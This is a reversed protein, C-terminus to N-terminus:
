QFSQSTKPGMFRMIRLPGTGDNAISFERCSFPIFFQDWQGIPLRIGDYEMRGKGELVCMGHFGGKGSASLAGGITLRDMRFFDTADYGVLCEILHSDTKKIIRPPILWKGAAEDAPVGVYRFCEFMRDFGLGNHISRDPLDPGNPSTRELRITLDTPEQIEVIFCGPGIAHPTGGPVIYTEGAKPSIRNMMALMGASDQRHFLDELKKRDAGERFGLFLAPPEDGDDRLALIHWCETKGYPSDFLRRATEKDPHAQIQLRSQSDLLKVLFGMATGHAAVHAPGLMKEPHAGIIEKLTPRAPDDALRCLGEEINERGANVARTTSIMWEEPFPGDKPDSVGHIIDLTRGGRWTRWVREGGVKLPREYYEM